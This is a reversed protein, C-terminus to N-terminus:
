SLSTEARRSIDWRYRALSMFHIQTGGKFTRGQIATDESLIATEVHDNDYLFLGIEKAAYKIGNFTQDHALDGM